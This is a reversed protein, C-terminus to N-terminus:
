RLGPFYYIIFVVVFVVVIILCKNRGSKKMTDYKHSNM